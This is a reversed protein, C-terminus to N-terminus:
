RRLSFIDGLVLARADTYHGIYRTEAVPVYGPVIDLVLEDISPKLKEREMETFTGLIVGNVQDFVGMQRYQELATM